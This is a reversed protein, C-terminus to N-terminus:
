GDEEGERTQFTKVGSYIGFAVGFAVFIYGFNRYDVAKTTPAANTDVYVRTGEIHIVRGRYITVDVPIAPSTDPLTGSITVGASLDHGAVTVDMQSHTFRTLLGPVTIRCNQGTFVQDEACVPAARAREERVRSRWSALMLSGAILWFAGAVSVGVVLPTYRKM